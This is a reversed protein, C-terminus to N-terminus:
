NCVLGLVFVAHGYLCRLCYGYILTCHFCPPHVHKHQYHTCLGENVGTSRAWKGKVEVFGDTDGKEVIEM